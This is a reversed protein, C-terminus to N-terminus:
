QRQKTAAELPPREGKEPNGLEWRGWSSVQLLLLECRSFRLLGRVLESVLELQSCCSVARVAYLVDNKQQLLITANTETQTIVHDGSLWQRAVATKLTM